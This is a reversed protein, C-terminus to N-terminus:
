TLRKVYFHRSEGHPSGAMRGFRHYGQKQYFGPAQFSYTNLHILRSGRRRARREAEQILGSGLGSRRARASLWLLEIYSERWYSQLILGGLLRKKDDRATLVTRSYKLPGAQRRNFKVLGNWLERSAKAANSREVVVRTAAESVKRRVRKM